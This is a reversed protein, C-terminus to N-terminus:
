KRLHHPDRGTYGDFREIGKIEELVELGDVKPLRLDLLILDPGKEEDDAYNGRHFLYDLADKGDSVHLVEKSADNDKLFRKVLMVHSEDDEVLLIV